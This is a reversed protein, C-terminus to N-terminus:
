SSQSAEGPPCVCQIEFTYEIVGYGAEYEEPPKCCKDITVDDSGADLVFSDSDSAFYINVLAFPEIGDYEHCGVEIEPADFNCGATFPMKDCVPDLAYTGVKKVHKIFIDTHNAFPNDVKFKVTHAGDDTPEDLIINYLIPEGEPMDHSSKIVKVIGEPKTPCATESTLVKYTEECVPPTITCIEDLDDGLPLPKSEPDFEYNHVEVPGDFTLDGGVILRGSQGRNKLTLSGYPVIVSGMLQHEGTFIVENSTNFLWVISTTLRPDFISEGCKFMGGVPADEEKFCNAPVHFEGDGNVKIMITKGHMEKKYALNFVEPEIMDIEFVQVPNNDEGPEFYMVGGTVYANGNPILTDWYDTKQQLLTIEDEWQQLDLLSNQKFDGNTNVFEEGLETKTVPCEEGNLTCEGQYILHCATEPNNFEYFIFKPSDFSADIDVSGGVEICDSNPFPHILSGHQTAGLRECAGEELNMDGLFVGRGEFGVGELCNFNGGVLVSPGNDYGMSWTDISGQCNITPYEISWAGTGCSASLCYGLNTCDGPEEEVDPFELLNDEDNDLKTTNTVVEIQDEVDPNGICKELQCAVPQPSDECEEIIQEPNECTWVDFDVFEEDEDCAYDEYDYGPEFVIINDEEGVCWNDVCYEFSAENRNIDPIQLTQGDPAMWDNHSVGDPVGLLGTSTTKFLEEEEQPLCIFYTLICSWETFPGSGDILVIIDSYYDDVKYSIDIQNFGDGRKVTFDDGENGYLYGYRSVDSIDVITGDVYFIVPCAGIQKSEDPYEPNSPNLDDFVPFSFQITPYSDDKVWDIALDNTISASGWPTDIAIFTAQINFMHNEMVTFIGVAQCDYHLEDCTVIHPDGWIGCQAGTCRGLDENYSQLLPVDRCLRDHVDVFSEDGESGEERGPICQSSVCNGDADHAHCHSKWGVCCDGPRPNSSDWDWKCCDNKVSMDIQCDAWWEDGICLYGDACDGQIPEAELPAYEYCRSWVARDEKTQSHDACIGPPVDFEMPELPNCFGDETCESGACCEGVGGCKNHWSICCEHDAKPDPMCMAFDFYFQECHFGRNCEAYEVQLEPVYNPAKITDDYHCQGWSTKEPVYDEGTIHGWWHLDYIASDMEKKSFYQKSKKPKCEEDVDSAVEGHQSEVLWSHLTEESEYDVIYCGWDLIPMFLNANPGPTETLGIEPTLPYYESNDNHHRVTAIMFDCWEDPHNSKWAYPEVEKDKFSHDCYREDPIPDGCHWLAQEETRFVYVNCSAPDFASVTTSGVLLLLAAVATKMSIM